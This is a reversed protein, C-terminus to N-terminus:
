PKVCVMMQGSPGLWLDYRDPEIYDEILWTYLDRVCGLFQCRPVAKCIQGDVAGQAVSFDLGDAPRPSNGDLIWPLPRWRTMLAEWDGEAIALDTLVNCAVLYKAEEQMGGAEAQVLAALLAVEDVTLALEGVRNGPGKEDARCEPFRAREFDEVDVGGMDVEAACMGHPLGAAMCASILVNVM